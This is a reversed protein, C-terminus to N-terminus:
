QARSNCQTVHDKMLMSLDFGCEGDQQVFSGLTSEDAVSLDWTRRESCQKIHVVAVLQKLVEQTQKPSKFICSTLLFRDEVVLCHQHLLWVLAMYANNSKNVIFYIYFLVLSVRWHLLSWVQFIFTNCTHKLNNIVIPFHLAFIINHVCYYPVVTVHLKWLSALTYSLSTIHLIYVTCTM